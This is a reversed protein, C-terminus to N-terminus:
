ETQNNEEDHKVSRSFETPPQRVVNAYGLQDNATAERLGQRALAQGYTYTRVSIRRADRLRLFVQKSPRPCQTFLNYARAGPATIDILGLQEMRAM